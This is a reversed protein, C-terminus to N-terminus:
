EGPRKSIAEKELERAKAREKVAQDREVVARHYALPDNTDIYILFNGMAQLSLAQALKRRAFAEKFSAPPSLRESLHALRESRHLLELVVEFGEERTITGRTLEELVKRVGELIVVLEDDLSAVLAVHQEPQLSIKEGPAAVLEGLAEGHRGEEALLVAVRVRLSPDEPSLSALEKLVEVARGRNGSSILAEVLAKKARVDKPRSKCVKELAVVAEKPRERKMYFDALNLLIEPDDPKLLLAKTFAREAEEWNGTHMALKAVRLQIEPEKPANISAIRAMALADNLKDMKEYAESLLLRARLLSSDLALADFLLKVAEQPNGSNLEHEAQKVLQSAREKEEETPERPTGPEVKSVAPFLSAIRNVVEEALQPFFTTPEGLIAFEIKTVRDRRVDAVFVRISKRDVEGWLAGDMGLRRAAPLRGKPNAKATVIEESTLGRQLLARLIIPSEPAFDMVEFSGNRLLAKRLTNYFSNAWDSRGEIPFLLLNAGYSLPATLALSAVGLLPSLRRM